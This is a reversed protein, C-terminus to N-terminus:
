LQLLVALETPDYWELEHDEAADVVFRADEDGADAAVLAKVAAVVESEADLGDIHVAAVSSLPIPADWTVKSDGLVYGGAASVQGDVDASIVARRPQDTPAEALLWLADQAARTFAVYEFDEEDGETYWERLGPTVAHAQKPTVAEDEYLRRLTAVTAPLYIRTM